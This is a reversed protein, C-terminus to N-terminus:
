STQMLKWYLNMIIAKKNVYNCTITQKLVHHYKKSYYLVLMSANVIYKHNYFYLKRLSAQLKIKKKKTDANQENYIWANTRKLVFAILKDVQNWWLTRTDRIQQCKIVERKKSSKIWYFRTEKRNYRKTTISRQYKINEPRLPFM